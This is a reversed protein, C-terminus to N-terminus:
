LSTALLFTQNDTVWVTFSQLFNIEQAFFEEYKFFQLYNRLFLVFHMQSGLLNRVRGKQFFVSESFNRNAMIKKKFIWCKEWPFFIEQSFFLKLRVLTFRILQV